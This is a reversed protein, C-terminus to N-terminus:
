VLRLIGTHQSRRPAPRVCGNGGTTEIQLIGPLAREAQNRQTTARLGGAFELGALNSSAFFSLAVTVVGRRIRDFLLGIRPQFPSGSSVLERM